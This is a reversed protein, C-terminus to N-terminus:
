DFSAPQESASDIYVAAVMTGDYNIDPSFSKQKGTIQHDTNTQLDHVVIV